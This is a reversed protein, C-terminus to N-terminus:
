SSPKQHCNHRHLIKRKIADVNKMSGAEVDRGFVIAILSIQALQNLLDV